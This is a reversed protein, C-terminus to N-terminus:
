CRKWRQNGEFRVDARAKLTFFSLSIHDVACRSSIGRCKNSRTAQTEILKAVYIGEEEEEEISKGVSTLRMVNPRGRGAFDRRSASRLRELLYGAREFKRVRKM